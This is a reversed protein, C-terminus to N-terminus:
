QKLDGPTLAHVRGCFECRARIIGDPDALAARDNESYAKLVTAIRSGDCPCRFVIPEAPLVRTEDEHFLRWLLTEAKLTTDLLEVDEVTALFSSLREWDDESGSGEPTAQLMIGAARWKPERSGANFV